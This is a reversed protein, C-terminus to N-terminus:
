KRIYQFGLVYLCVAIRDNNEAWYKEIHFHDKMVFKVQELSLRCSKNHNSYVIMKTALLIINILKYKKRSEDLIIYRIELNYNGFGMRKIWEQVEIWLM